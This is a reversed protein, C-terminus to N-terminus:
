ERGEDSNSRSKTWFLTCFCDTNYWGPIWDSPSPAPVAEIFKEKAMTPRLKAKSYPPAVTLLGDFCMIPVFQKHEM